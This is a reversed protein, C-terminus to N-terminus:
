RRQLLSSTVVFLTVMALSVLTIMDSNTWAITPKSFLNSNNYAFGLAGSLALIKVSGM